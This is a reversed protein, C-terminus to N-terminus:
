GNSELEQKAIEHALKNMTTRKPAEEGTAKKYLDQLEAKSNGAKLEIMRAELQKAIGEGAYWDLTQLEESLLDQLLERHQDSQKSLEGSNRKKARGVAAAHADMVRNRLSQFKEKSIRRRMCKILHLTAQLNRKALQARVTDGMYYPLTTYQEFNRVIVEAELDLGKIYDSM